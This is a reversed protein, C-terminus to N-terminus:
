YNCSMVLEVQKGTKLTFNVQVSILNKNEFTFIASINEGNLQLGLSQGNLFSLVKDGKVTLSLVGDKFTIEQMYDKNLDFNILDKRNLNQVEEVEKVTSFEFSSNLRSTEKTILANGESIEITEGYKYVTQGGDAVVVQTNMLTIQECSKDIMKNAKNINSGACSTLLATIVVLLTAIVVILKKNKM